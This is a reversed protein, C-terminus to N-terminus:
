NKNTIPKSAKDELTIKTRNSILNIFFSLGLLLGTILYTLISKRVRQLAVVSFNEWFIDSPESAREMKIRQGAFYRRDVKNRCRLIRFFVYNFFRMIM